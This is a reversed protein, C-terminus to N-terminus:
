YPTHKPQYEGVNSMKRTFLKNHTLNTALYNSSLYNTVPTIAGGYNLLGKAM